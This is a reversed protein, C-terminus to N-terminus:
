FISRVQLLNTSSESTHDFVVAPHKDEVKNKEEDLIKQKTAVTNSTIM